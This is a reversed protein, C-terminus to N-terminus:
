ELDPSPEVRMELRKVTDQGLLDAVRKLVEGLHFRLETAFSAHDVGVVLADRHVSRAVCHDALPEGLLQSWHQRITALVKVDGMGEVRLWRDLAEAIPTPEVSV